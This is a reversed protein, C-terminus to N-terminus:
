SCVQAKDSYIDKRIVHALDTALIIHSKGWSSYSEM